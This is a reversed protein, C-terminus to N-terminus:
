STPGHFDSWSSLGNVIAMKWPGVEHDMTYIPGLHLNARLTVFGKDWAHGSHIIPVIHFRYKTSTALALGYSLLMV